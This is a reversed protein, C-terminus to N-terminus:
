PHSTAAMLEAHDKETLDAYHVAFEAVADDFVPRSGLYGSIEASDGVRAHARALVGGCVRSYVVLANRSLKEVEISAKLDRLQRVYFDETPGAGSHARSWGLFPDGAAQMAKQGAVVRQGSNAFRSAGLYTELVSPGAQKLQLVLPEDDGTQLLVVIAHTGVSGVGVVKHALDVFAFRSLLAVLDIPVTELYGRYIDTLSALFTDFDARPVPVLLPPESRFRRQAGAGETLTRAASSSTKRTSKEAAAAMAKGLPTGKLRNRLAAGDVRTNWATLTPLMALRSMAGRYEAVGARVADRTHKDSLGLLRATVAVSAALRKVDWEFPGALTEDFDNLDFVLTREASAFLGFNALHADGCLQTRIGSDAVLSLDSAMVGASGRLYAFPNASMREYRLSVLSPERTSDQARLLSLPDRRAEATPVEAHAGRPVQKRRAKGRARRTERDPRTRTLLAEAEYGTLEM